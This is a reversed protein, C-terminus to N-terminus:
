RGGALAVQFIPLYIAIVIFGIAGGVLILITPEIMATLRKLFTSVRQRYFEAVRELMKGVEGIEEGISVMQIVMPSFLGSRELPPAIAKGVRVEEKVKELGKQATKNGVAKSVIDLAQLVGVGGKLLMGLGSSFRETVIDRSLRGLLPVRLIFRDLNSRGNETAIYRSFMFAGGITILAILLFYRKIIHSFSFVAVTLAPLEMDFGSFFSSFMPIIWVTFVVLAAIAIFVLMAPYILASAVERKVTAVSELYDAIQNLVIQLNGSAEGTEILRVWFSSFVRPHRGLAKSLAEGAEINVVASELIKVLAKSESQLSIVRLSRLLPVGAELLTSLQRAFIILDENSVGRRQWFKFTILKKPAAPLLEELSIILAEERQLQEILESKTAAEVTQEIERGQRDKIKYKFRGM